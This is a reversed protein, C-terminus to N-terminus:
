MRRRFIQVSMGVADAAENGQVILSIRLPDLEDLVPDARDKRREIGEKYKPPRFSQGHSHFGMILILADYRVEQGFMRVHLLNIIRAKSRMRLMLKSFSLLCTKASHYREFGTRDVVGSFDQFPYLEAGKALAKSADLRKDRMGGRHRM